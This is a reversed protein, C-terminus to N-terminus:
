SNFLDSLENAVQEVKQAKASKNQKRETKKAIVVGHSSQLAQVLLNVDEPLILDKTEPFEKIFVLCRNLADSVDDTVLVEKVKQLHEHLKVAIENGDDVTRDPWDAVDTKLTIEMDNLSGASVQQAPQAPQEAKNSFLNSTKKQPAAVTAPKAGIQLAPKSNAPQTTVQKGNRENLLNSLKSM